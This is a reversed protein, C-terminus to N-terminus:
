YRYVKPLVIGFSQWFGLSISRLNSIHFPSISKKGLCAHIKRPEFKGAYDELGDGDFVATIMPDENLIYDGQMRRELAKLLKVVKNDKHYTGHEKFRTVLEVSGSVRIHRLPLIRTVFKPFYEADARTRRGMTRPRCWPGDACKGFGLVLSKLSSHEKLISVIHSAIPDHFSSSHFRLNLANRIARREVQSSMDTAIFRNESFLIIKAEFFTQKNVRLIQTSDYVASASRSATKM